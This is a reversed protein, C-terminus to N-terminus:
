LLWTYGFTGIMVEIKAAKKSIKLMRTLIPFILKAIVYLFNAHSLPLNLEFEYNLYDGVRKLM